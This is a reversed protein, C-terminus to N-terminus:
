VQVIFYRVRRQVDVICSPFSSYYTGDLLCSLQLTFKVRKQKLSSCQVKSVFHVTLKPFSTCTFYVIIKSFIPRHCVCLIYFNEFSVVKCYVLIGSMDTKICTKLSQYYLNVWLFIFTQTNRRFLGTYFRLLTFSLFNGTIM